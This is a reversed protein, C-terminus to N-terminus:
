RNIKFSSYSEAALLPRNRLRFSDARVLSLVFYMVENLWHVALKKYTSNYTATRDQTATM